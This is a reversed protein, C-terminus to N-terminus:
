TAQQLGSSGPPTTGSVRLIIKRKSNRFFLLFFCCSCTVLFNESHFCTVTKCHTDILKVGCRQSRHSKLGTALIKLLPTIQLARLARTCAYARLVLPTQPCAGGSFKQYKSARLDCRTGNQPLTRFPYYLTLYPPIRTCRFDPFM